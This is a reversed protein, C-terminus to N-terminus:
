KEKGSTSGLIRNAARLPKTVNWSNSSLIRARETELVAVRENLVQAQEQLQRQQTDAEVLRSRSQALERNLRKIQNFQIMNRAEAASVQDLVAARRDESTKQAQQAQNIKVKMEALRTEYEEGQQRAASLRNQLYTEREMCAAIEAQLQMLHAQHLEREELAIAERESAEVLQRAQEGDSAAGRKLAQELRTVDQEAAARAEKDAKAAAEAAAIRDQLGAEGEKLALVESRVGALSAAHRDRDQAAAATEQVARFAADISDATVSPAAHSLSSAELEASLARAASSTQVMNLALCFSVPDSGAPSADVPASATLSFRDLLSQLEDQPARALYVDEVLVMRRRNKRQVQLIETVDRCWGALAESPRVGDAMARAIANGANQFVIVPTLDNDLAQAVAAHSFADIQPGDPALHGVRKKIDDIDTGQATFLHM